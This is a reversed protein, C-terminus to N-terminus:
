EGKCAARAALRRTYIGGCYTARRSCDTRGGEIFKWHLYEDCAAPFDGDAYMRRLRSTKYRALGVNYAHDVVAIKQGPALTDFGHTLRRVERAYEALRTDLLALCEAHTYRRMPAGTDGYCVTAVMGALGDNFPTLAEGENRATYFLAQCAVAAGGLVTALVLKNPCAMADDKQTSIHHPLHLPARSRNAM